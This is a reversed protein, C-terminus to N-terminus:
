GVGLSPTAFEGQVVQKRFRARPFNIHRKPRIVRSESCARPRDSRGAGFGPFRQERFYSGYIRHSARRLGRKGRFGTKSHYTTM